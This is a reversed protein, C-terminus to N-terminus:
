ERLRPGPTPGLEGSKSMPELYGDTRSLSEPKFAFLEVEVGLNMSMGSDAALDVQRKLISRSCHAFPTTGGYMLDAAFWAFRRDWPCIRLTSADPLAVCEDENPTMQGLDGMGRPTYRESGALLNPLHAIPVIKSKSRGTIDIFGGVAFEVGQAALSAALEAHEQTPTSVTDM